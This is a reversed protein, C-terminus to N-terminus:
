LMTGFGDDKPIPKRPTGDETTPKRHRFTFGVFLSKAMEDDRDAMTELAQQKEHVEKYKAMDSESTFDDFYGADM